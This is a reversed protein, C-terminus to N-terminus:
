LKSFDTGDKTAVSSYLDRRTKGIFDLFRFEPNTAQFTRVTRADTIDDARNIVDNFNESYFSYFSDTPRYNGKKVVV